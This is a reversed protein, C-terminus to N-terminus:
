SATFFFLGIIPFSISHLVLFRFSWWFAAGHCFIEQLCCCSTFRQWTAFHEYGKDKTCALRNWSEDVADWELCMCHILPRLDTLLGPWSFSLHHLYKCATWKVWLIVHRPVYCVKTQSELVKYLYVQLFKSVTWWDFETILILVNALM